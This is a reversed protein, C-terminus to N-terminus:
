EHEELTEEIRAKNNSFGQFVRGDIILTPVLLAPAREELEELNSEDEVNKKVCEVHHEELFREAKSCDFCMPSYYLTVEAAM